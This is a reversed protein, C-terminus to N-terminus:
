RVREALFPRVAAEFGAPREMNVQHAAGPIVVRRAGPVRAAISDAIELINPMDVSGVVALTPARIGRLRGFAPPESGRRVPELSWRSLLNTEAEHYLRAGNVTVHGQTAQTPAQCLASSVGGLALALVRSM